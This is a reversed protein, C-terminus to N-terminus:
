GAQKKVFTLMKKLLLQFEETRHYILLYVLNTFLFSCAFKGACEAAFAGTIQRCLMDVCFWVAFTVAGYLAYRVFFKVAPCNLKYKYLIYPKVWLVTTVTSITTGLFVGATGWYSGLIFSAVLNIVVELIVMHRDYRFLGMADRFMIAAQCTGMLYFNICLILTIDKSFVFQGGFSFGVFSDIVEYLCIAALGFFWQGAFFFAGFVKKIREGSEEVGLNGVSASAARFMQNLLQNVSGIILYYNSYRGVSIIGVLSSLLLSDTNNVAVGGIKHILMARINRYIERKEQKSLSQIKKDKLYPYQKDAKKSVCVNSVLTCFIFIFMYIIFNKMLLLALIQLLNQVILFVTQYLVGIYNLQHADLLAKKYILLYSAVSNLLYMFYIFILHEVRDQEQVLVDMFLIVLLGSLLVFGAVIRYLQRYMRMLSKQKEIDGEAIPKYLAYTIAASIGLESLALVSLINTFLGNIGVYVERLTHTLVVRTIYGVLIAIVQAAVAVATNRAAYETRSKEAM